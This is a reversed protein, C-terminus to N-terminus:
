KCDSIVIIKTRLSGCRVSPYHVPGASYGRAVIPALSIAHAKFGGDKEQEPSLGLSTSLGSAKV